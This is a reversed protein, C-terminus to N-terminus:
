IKIYEELIDQMKKKIYHVRSKVTGVNMDLIKAIEKYSVGEFERLIFIKKEDEKLMNLAESFKEDLEKVEITFTLEKSVIAEDLELHFDIKKNKNIIHNLSIRYIWTSISSRYSFKELNEFIKIFIDQVTDEVENKNILIKICLKKVKDYYKQYIQEFAKEKDIKLFIHILEDM